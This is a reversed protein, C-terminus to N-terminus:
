LVMKTVSMICQFFVLFFCIKQLKLKRAELFFRCNVKGSSRYQITTFRYDRFKSCNFLYDMRLMQFCCTLQKLNSTFSSFNLVGSIIHTVQSTKAQTTGICCFAFDLKQDSSFDKSSLDLFNM